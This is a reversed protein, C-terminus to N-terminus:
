HDQFPDKRHFNPRFHNFSDLEQHWGNYMQLLEMEEKVQEYEKATISRDLGSHSIVRETPYYQSMLSIHIRPSIEHAIYRLINLSNEVFGPLILHRVVIGSEAIGEESQILSSGKQRYMEKLSQSAIDPYDEADSLKLALKPDWYKFDPLYVDILGELKTLSEPKDYGNTNYVWIPKYGLNEIVAIIVKVQPIVHSPSVFGIRDIGQNLIDTIRRIVEDLKMRSRDRNIKNNSIQHNQCYICQLNCNSFFINCIGEKGSIVPEEGRHICISAINFSADSKCYGLRDSFRDAHCNRPCVSCDKLEMLPSLFTDYNM